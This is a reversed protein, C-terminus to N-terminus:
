RKLNTRIPLCSESSHLGAIMNCFWEEYRAPANQGAKMLALRAPKRGTDRDSRVAAVDTNADFIGVSWYHDPVPEIDILVPGKEVDFVCSSYSLNPSPRVIPQRDATAMPGFVFQNAPGGAGIKDMAAHMMVKPTVVLTAQYAGIALLSGVMHPFMWRWIM